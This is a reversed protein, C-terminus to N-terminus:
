VRNIRETAGQILASLEANAQQQQKLNYAINKLLSRLNIQFMFDRQETQSTIFEEQTQGTNALLLNFAEILEPEEALIRDLIGKYDVKVVPTEAPTEAQSDSNQGARLRENM